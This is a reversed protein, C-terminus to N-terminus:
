RLAGLRARATMLFRGARAKLGGRQRRRVFERLARNQREDIAVEPFHKPTFEHADAEFPSESERHAGSGDHGRNAVVSKRPYLVLGGAAFVDLYWGIGWSDVDGRHQKEMMEFYPFADDLDFQRRLERDSALRDYHAAGSGLRAWARAWTGWGWCSILPVFLADDTSPIEVPFMYGSIQMVRDDHAYRDLATNMFALFTSSVELDDEVIIARGFEDCLSAVGFRMSTALGFNRDREIIRTNAPALAHAVKRTEDVRVRGEPTKAGDCFIVLQSSALEKCRALAGLARALHEPRNYAFLGIPAPM